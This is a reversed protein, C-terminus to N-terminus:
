SPFNLISYKSLSIQLRNSILSGEMTFSISFLLSKCFSDVNLSGEMTIDISFGLWFKDFSVKYWRLFFFYLAVLRDLRARSGLM